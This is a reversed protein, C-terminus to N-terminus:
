SVVGLIIEESMIDSVISVEKSIVVTKEGKIKIMDGVNLLSMESLIKYKPILFIDLSSIEDEQLYPIYIHTGIGKKTSIANGNELITTFNKKTVKKKYEILEVHNNIFMEDEITPQNTATVINSLSQKYNSDYFFILSKKRLEFTLFSLQNYNELCTDFKVNNYKSTLPFENLVIKCLDKDMFSYKTYLSDDIDVSSKDHLMLKIVELSPLVFSYEKDYELTNNQSIFIIELPIGYCSSKLTQSFIDNDSLIVNERDQISVIM